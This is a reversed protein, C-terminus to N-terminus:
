SEDFRDLEGLLKQLREVAEEADVGHAELTATLEAISTPAYFM